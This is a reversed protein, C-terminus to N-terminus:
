VTLALALIGILQIALLWTAIIVNRAKHRNRDLQGDISCVLDSLIQEFCRDIGESIYSNYLWDWDNRGPSVSKSPMWAWLSLLLMALYAGFAITLAIQPSLSPPNYIFAPIRVAGSLAILLGGAQMITAAKGDLHDGTQIHIDLAKQRQELVLQQQPTLSHPAAPPPAEQYAM